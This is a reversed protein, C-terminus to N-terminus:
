YKPTNNHTNAACTNDFQLLHKRLKSTNEESASLQAREAVM